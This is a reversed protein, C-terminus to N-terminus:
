LQTTFATPSALVTVITLSTLNSRSKGTKSSNSWRYICVPLLLLLQLLARVRWVLKVATEVRSYVATLRTHVHLYWTLTGNDRYGWLALDRDRYVLSLTGHDRAEPFFTGHDDRYGWPVHDQLGLLRLALDQPGWGWPYLDLPGSLRLLLQLLIPPLMMPIISIIHWATILTIPLSM